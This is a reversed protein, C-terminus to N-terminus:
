QKKYYYFAIIISNCSKSISINIDNSISKNTSGRSSCRSIVISIICVVSIYAIVIISSFSLRGSSSSVIIIRQIDFYHM